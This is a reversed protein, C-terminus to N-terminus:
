AVEGNGNEDTAGREYRAQMDARAAMEDLYAEYEAKHEPCLDEIREANACKATKCIKATKM